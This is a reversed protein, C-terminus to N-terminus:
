SALFYALQIPDGAGLIAARVEHPVQPLMALAQQILSQVNRRLAEVEEPDVVTLEPLIEVRAKLFPQEQTWGLVRVRDAGQVILQLSDDSRIMRKVMVLTAVEYLDIPLANSGTTNESRASVAAILKEQTALAAEVAAISRTSGVLLPALTGPFLTTNQLPLVPIEFPVGPAPSETTTPVQEQNEAM